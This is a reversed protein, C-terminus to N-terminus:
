PKITYLILFFICIHMGAMKSMNNRRLCIVSYNAHRLNVGYKTRVHSSHSMPRAKSIITTKLIAAMKNLGKYIKNHKKQPQM